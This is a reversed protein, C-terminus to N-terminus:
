QIVLYNVVNPISKVTGIKALELCFDKPLLILTCDMYIIM